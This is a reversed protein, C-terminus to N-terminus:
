IGHRLSTTIKLTDDMVNKLSYLVTKMALAHRYLICHSNIIEKSIEKIEANLEVTTGVMIKVCDIYVEIYNM